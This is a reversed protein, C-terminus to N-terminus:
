TAGRRLRNGKVGCLDGGAEPALHASVAMRPGTVGNCVPHAGLSACSTFARRLLAIIATALGELGGGGFRLAEEGGVAEGRVSARMRAGHRRRAPAPELGNLGRGRSLSPGAIARRGTPRDVALRRGESAAAAAARSKKTTNSPKCGRRARFTAGAGARRWPCLSSPAVLSGSASPPAKRRRPRERGLKAANSVGM